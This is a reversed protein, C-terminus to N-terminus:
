REENAHFRVGPRRDRCSQVVLAIVGALAFPAIPLSPTPYTFRTM